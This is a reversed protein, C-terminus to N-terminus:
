DGGAYQFNILFERGIEIFDGVVPRHSGFKRCKLGAIARGSAEQDGCRRFAPDCCKGSSRVILLM